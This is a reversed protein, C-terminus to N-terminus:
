PLLNIPDSATSIPQNKINASVRPLEGPKTSFKAAQCLFFQHPMDTNKKLIDKAKTKSLM